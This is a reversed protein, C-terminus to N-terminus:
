PRPIGQGPVGASGSHAGQLPGLIPIHSVRACAVGLLPVLDDGSSVVRPGTWNADVRKLFTSAVLM